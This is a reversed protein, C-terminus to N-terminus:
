TVWACGRPNPSPRLRGRRLRSSTVKSARCSAGVLTSHLVQDGGGGEGGREAGAPGHVDARRGLGAAGAAEDLYAVGVPPPRGGLVAGTDNVFQVNLTISTIERSGENHLELLVVQGPGGQKYVVDTTVQDYPIIWMGALPIAVLMAAMVLTAMVVRVPSIHAAAQRARELAAEALEVEHLTAEREGVEVVTERRRQQEAVRGLLGGSVDSEVLEPEDPDGSYSYAGELEDEPM